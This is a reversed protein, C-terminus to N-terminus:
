QNLVKIKRVPASKVDKNKKPKYLTSYGASISCKIMEEAVQEDGECLQYLHEIAIKETDPSKFYKGLEVKRYVLWMEWVGMFRESFFKEKNIEKITKYSYLSHNQVKTSKQNQVKEFDSESSISESDSCGTARNQVKGENQNQVQTNEAINIDYNTSLLGNMDKGDTHSPKVSQLNNDTYSDSIYNTTSHKQNQVKATKPEKKGELIGYNITISTNTYTKQLTIVGSSALKPLIRSVTFAKIGTHQAIIKCTTYITGSPTNKGNKFYPKHDAEKLLYIMIALFTPKKSWDFSFISRYAKFYGAM